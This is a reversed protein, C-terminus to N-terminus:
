DEGPGSRGADECTVDQVTYEATKKRGCGDCYFTITHTVHPNVKSAPPNKFRMVQIEKAVSVTHKKGCTCEATIYCWKKEGEAMDM